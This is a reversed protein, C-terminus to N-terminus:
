KAEKLAKVELDLEKLKEQLYQMGHLINNIAHEHHNLFNYLEANDTKNEM